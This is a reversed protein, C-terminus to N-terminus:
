RLVWVVGGTERPIPQPYDCVRVIERRRCESCIADRAVHTSTSAYHGCVECRFIGPPHPWRLRDVRRRIEHLDPVDM